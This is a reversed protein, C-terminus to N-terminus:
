DLTAAVAEEFREAVADAESEDIVLPPLFRMTAGNRGGREVILGNDFCARQIAEALDADPPHTGGIDTAANPDVIEVGLMLGRGRVDGLEPRGEATQELRDLLHDGMRGAHTPVDNEVIYDLAATGAAMGLQHGRFTGVHDGSEWEDYRERYVLVSLPVGGGVAKSLLVADPVIDAHEFAYMEGTRGVGAQIEDLILPIDQERTIRRIERLWGDPAPISGGEGQVPEVIVAAPDAVGSEPDTLLTEFQTALAEHEAKGGIGLPPRYDYPYPEHHVNGPLTLDAKPGTDGLLALSGATMGHYAGRFAIVSQNGTAKQMLKLSAEVADTGAPSCFQVRAEDAFSQPLTDLMSDLFADRQPTTIDLTHTPAEDDLVSRIADVVVPHNHGLPISGAGALCDIYRNGEVDILEVGDAREVAFPLYRPYTRANSERAAQRDLYAENTADPHQSM